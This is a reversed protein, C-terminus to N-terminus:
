DEVAVLVSVLNGPMEERLMVRPHPKTAFVSYKETHSEKEITYDLRVTPASGLVSHLPQVDTSTGTLRSTSTSPDFVHFQVKSSDPVVAAMMAAWDVRQDVVREDFTATFPTAKGKTTDTGTAGRKSYAITLRYLSDGSSMVLDATVPEFDRKFSSSWHQEVDESELTIRYEGTNTSRVEITALGIVDNNVSLQYTFKGERLAAADLVPHATSGALAVKAPDSSAVPQGALASPAVAACLAGVLLIVASNLQPM